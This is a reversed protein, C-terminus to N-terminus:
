AAPTRAHIAYVINSATKIIFALSIIERRRAVSLFVLSFRSDTMIRSLHTVKLTTRKTHRMKWKLQIHMM